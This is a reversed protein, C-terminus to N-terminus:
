ATLVDVYTHTEEEFELLNMVDIFSANLHNEHSAVDVM